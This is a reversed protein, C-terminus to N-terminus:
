EYIKETVIKHIANPLNTETVELWHFSNQFMMKFTIVNDNIFENFVKIMDIIIMCTDPNVYYSEPYTQRDNTAPHFYQGQSLCVIDGIEFM